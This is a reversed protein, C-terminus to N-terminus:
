PPHISPHRSDKFPCRKSGGIIILQHDYIFDHRSPLTRLTGDRREPPAMSPMVTNGAKYQLLKPQMISYEKSRRTQTERHLMLLFEYQKTEFSSLYTSISNNYENNWVRLFDSMCDRYNDQTEMINELSTYGLGDHLANGWAFRLEERRFDLSKLANGYQEKSNTPETNRESEPQYDSM